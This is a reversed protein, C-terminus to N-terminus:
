KIYKLKLKNTLYNSLLKSFFLKHFILAKPLMKEFCVNNLIKTDKLCRRQFYLM